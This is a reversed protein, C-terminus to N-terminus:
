KKKKPPPPLLKLGSAPLRSMDITVNRQAALDAIVKGIAEPTKIKSKKVGEEVAYFFKEFHGPAVMLLMKAPKKTPNWFGHYNERPLSAVTGKKAVVEKKGNLFHVTGELVVFIEDENEHIHPPAGLSMPALQIESLAVSQPLDEAGVHMIMDHGPSFPVKKGEGLKLFKPKFKSQNNSGKESTGTKAQVSSCFSFFAILIVVVKM